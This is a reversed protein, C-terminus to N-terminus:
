TTRSTRMVRKSFRNNSRPTRFTRSLINPTKPQTAANPNAKLLFEVDKTWHDLMYPGSGASHDLLWTNGMDGNAEHAKVEKSDVIGGTVGTLVTLFAAPSVDKPMTLVVTKPDTAKISDVTSSGIDTFLFAPPKNSEDCTNSPFSWMM